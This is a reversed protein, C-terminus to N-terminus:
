LHDGCRALGHAERRVHGPYILWHPDIAFRSMVELAATANEEPVTVNRFLRTQVIRKGIVDTLELLDEYDGPGSTTPPQDGEPLFPKAPEYYTRAAPVSVLQREPYRLATLRGGFVCGTDVNITNNVWAPEPVPTHGYVVTARGRYEAAWNYRVPLGFEDTEGTTEGYLAFDRVRGSARGQMEQRLGAHAVVLKGDDLVYHSILGDLFEVARENFEPPQESLQGLSEALGHTVQVNRGQLARVLKQEHNGPVCLAAGSAVASMVLRLVGPTDPGRDVLDGLFILKRGPPSTVHYQPGEPGDAEFAVDYGLTGLLRRLEDLCGHIDGIIDFPGHQDRRNVWLPKREVIAANVAEESELTFVYRFGERKLFRLSRRMQDRQRHIVDQRVNRDTRQKNRDIMVREPVDFVIGVVLCYHKKALEVLSKRSEPQVNTADIVTLRGGELRKSAILHLVEFAAPTADQANEDDAVLARCLDSTIIETSKFHKRAFTSKGSGSPGILVVLALEPIEITM